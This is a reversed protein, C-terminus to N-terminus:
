NLFCRYSRAPSRVQHPPCPRRIKVSVRAQRAAAQAADALEDFSSEWAERVDRSVLMRLTPWLSILLDRHLYRILDDHIGQALVLRYYSMRLRPQDLDFTTLGSWVLHLPLTV